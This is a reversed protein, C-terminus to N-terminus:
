MNRMRSAPRTIDRFPQRWATSLPQQPVPQRQLVLRMLSFMVNVGPRAKPPRGSYISLGPGGGCNFLFHNVILRSLSFYVLPKSLCSKWQQLGMQTIPSCTYETWSLSTCEMHQHTHMAWPAWCPKHRRCWAAWVWASWEDSCLSSLSRPWRNRKYCVTPRLM